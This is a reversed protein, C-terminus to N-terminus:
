TGIGLKCGGEGGAGPTYFGPPATNKNFGSSHSIGPALALLVSKIIYLLIHPLCLSLFLFSPNHTHPSLSLDSLYFIAVVRPDRLM